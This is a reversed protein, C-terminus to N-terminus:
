PYFLTHNDIDKYILSDPYLLFTKSMTRAVHETSPALLTQELSRLDMKWDIDGTSSEVKQVSIADLSPPPLIRWSIQKLPSTMHSTLKKGQADFTESYLREPYFNVDSNKLLIDIAAEPLPKQSTHLYIIETTKTQPHWAIGFLFPALEQKVFAKRKKAISLLKERLPAPWETLAVGLAPEEMQGNKLTYSFAFHPFLHNKEILFGWTTIASSWDSLFAKEETTLYSDFTTAQSKYLRLFYNKIFGKRPQEGYIRPLPISRAAPAILLALVFSMTLAFKKNMM